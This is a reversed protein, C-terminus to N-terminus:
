KKKPIPVGPPWRYQIKISRPFREICVKDGQNGGLAYVYKADFSAVFFVHGLHHGDSMGSRSKVGIAGVMPGALGQGYMAYDLAWLTGTNPLHAEYLVAGVFAACWPTHRDGPVAEKSAEEFFKMVTPTVRLNTEGVVGMYNHAIHMWPLDISGKVPM